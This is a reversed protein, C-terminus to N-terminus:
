WIRKYCGCCCRGHGFGEVMRMVMEIIMMSVYASAIQMFCVSAIRALLLHMTATTTTRSCATHCAIVLITSAGRRGSTAMAGRERLLLQILKLSSEVFAMIRINITTLLQSARGLEIFSANLYAKQKILANKTQKNTKSWTNAISLTSLTAHRM